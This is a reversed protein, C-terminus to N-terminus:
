IFHNIRLMKWLKVYFKMKLSIETIQAASRFQSFEDHVVGANEELIKRSADTNVSLTGIIEKREEIMREKMRQIFEKEM